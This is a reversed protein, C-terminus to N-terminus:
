WFGIIEGTDGLPGIVAVSKVSKSFPLIGDNKLLVASEEAARQVLARHEKCLILKEAEDENAKGYPNEFLGLEDKLKLVRMVATDLQEITLKGEGILEEVYRVYSTSMMEIDVGAQMSLNAVEKFDEAVGHTILEGMANYDSIVVGDFGWEKRLIGDLLKKNGSPPMGDVINFSTMAM